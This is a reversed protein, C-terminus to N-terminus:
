VVEYLDQLVDFQAKYSFQANELVKKAAINQRNIVAGIRPIGQSLISDVVPPLIETMIYYGTAYDSLYFEIFFPYEDLQYHEKAVEPSILDILGIVRNLKKDTIFHIYNLGAHYNFVMTQLFLM